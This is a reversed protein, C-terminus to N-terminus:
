LNNSDYKERFKKLAQYGFDRQFMAESWTEEDLDRQRSTAPINAIDHDLFTITKQYQEILEKTDKLLEDYASKEIVRVEGDVKPGHIVHSTFDEFYYHQINWERPKNEM